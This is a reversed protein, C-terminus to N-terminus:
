NVPFTLVIGVEDDNIIEYEADLQGALSVIIKWGLGDFTGFDFDEPFGIGNDLYKFQCFTQGDKEFLDLSKYITKNKSNKDFAYKFTNVTLENIILALPTVINISFTLNEDVERIFTIGDDESRRHLQKDLDALFTPVNMNNMNEDKYIREHILALSEIRRETIDLIKEYNGRHFRKELNIFSMIIQLNNKVRHHVEQLLVTKERDTKILYNTFDKEKTIDQAFMSLRLFNGEDDCIKHVVGRLYKTEGSETMIRFEDIIVEDDDLNDLKDKFKEFDGPYIYEDFINIDEDGCRPERDILEYTEESWHFKGDADMYQIALSTSKQIDNVVALLIDLQQNRLTKETIDKIDCFHKFHNEDFDKTISFGLTKVKGNVLIRFSEMYKTVSSDELKDKIKKIKYQDEPIVTELIINRKSDEIEAERELIEYTGESWFYRGNDFLTYFATKNRKELIAVSKKFNSFKELQGQAIYDEDLVTLTGDDNYSITMKLSFILIEGDCYHCYAIEEEHTAYVKKFIPNIFEEWSPFVDEWCKGLFKEHSSKFYNTALFPSIYQFAFKQGNEVPYMVCIKIKENNKIFNNTFEPVNYVKSDIHAELDGMNYVFFNNGNEEFNLLM